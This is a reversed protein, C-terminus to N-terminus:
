PAMEFLRDRGEVIRVVRNAPVDHFQQVIGSPWAVELVDVRTDDALGAIMTWGSSCYYGNGAMRQIVIRRNGIRLRVEAGVAPRSSQTGILQVALFNGSGNSENSLLAPAGDLHTTVVDERGDSNWDLKAMSRGLRAESGYTGLCDSNELQFVGSGNNTYLQPAMKWPIDMHLFNDVHGNVILIDPDGDLDADVFQTGFGLMRRSSAGLSATDTSDRFFHGDLNTYLTNTEEYFNTVFLDIRGDGNVDGAAIGMCAEIRGDGSSAVGAPGGMETFLPSHDSREDDPELLGGLLLHNPTMDNSIFLDVAGNADFDAAVIGLGRGAESPLGAFETVDRFTGDGLGQLVRDGAADFFTPKCGRILQEAGSRCVRTFPEQGAVYNVDYLDDIGDGDLDAMLCSTTWESNAASPLFNAEDFTGDGNNLLLRNTGIAAVYLDAFGDSNIDGVAVGQGFAHDHPIAAGTVDAFRDGVNRYLQDQSRPDDPLEPWVSGQVFLLDPRGDSDADIVAVGGGFQQYIWLGNEPSDFGGFYPTTLGTQQSVDRFRISAPVSEEGDNGSSTPSPLDPWKVDFTLAAQLEADAQQAGALMRKRAAQARQSAVSAHEPHQQAVLTWWAYEEQPRNLEGLLAAVRLKSEATSDGFLIDHLRRELEDLRLARERLVAAQSEADTQSLLQALQQCAARHNPDLQIATVLQGAADAPLANSLSLRALVYQTDPHERASRPLQHQWDALQQWRETQLLMLGLGAWAERNRSDADIAQQFHDIAEDPKQRFEALYGLGTLPGPGSEIVIARRLVQEDELLELRSGLMVLEDLHIRGTDLLRRLLPQAEWHRGHTLLLTALERIAFESDPRRDLEWRLFAEASSHLGAAIFKSISRDPVAQDPSEALSLLTTYFEAAEPLQNRAAAADAAIRLASPNRPETELIRTALESAAAPDRYVNRRAVALQQELSPSRFWWVAAGCAIVVVVAGAILRSM